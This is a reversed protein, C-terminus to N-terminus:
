IKQHQKLWDLIHNLGVDGYIVDFDNPHQIVVAPVKDIGFQEFSMPDIQIGSKTQSQLTQFESLTEKLSHHKLGRLLVPASIQEAQLLWQQLSHKPMSFSVFVLINNKSSASFNEKLDKKPNLFLRQLLQMSEKQYSYASQKATETLKTIEHQSLVDMAVSLHFQMMLFISLVLHRLM